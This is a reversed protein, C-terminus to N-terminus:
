EFKAKREALRTTLEALVYGPVLGSVDGGLDAFEKILSSSVHSYEPDAAVFLTEVNSLRRNMQSMKLEYAYDSMGRLGKVMASAGHEVCFDVLLGGLAEVRVNPYEGTGKRIMAIREEATFLARKGINKGVAVIVEDFLTAARGIIALHGKTVPDFSGPCVVRRIDPERM